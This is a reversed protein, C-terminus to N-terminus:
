WAIIELSDGSQPPTTLTLTIGSISYDVGQQLVLGKWIVMTTNVGPTIIFTQNIGNKTGVANLRSVNPISTSSTVWLTSAVALIVDDSAPANIFTLTSGSISYDVGPKQMLGNLVIIVPSGSPLSYTKNVGNQVGTVTVYQFQSIDDIYALTSWPAAIGCYKLLPKRQMELINRSKFPARAM